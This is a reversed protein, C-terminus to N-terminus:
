SHRGRVILYILVGVFPLLVLLVVWLAKAVGSLEHDRFIDLLATFFILLCTVVVYFWIMWVFVEWISM